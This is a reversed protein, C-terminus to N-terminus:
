LRILREIYSKIKNGFVAKNDDTHLESYTMHYLEDASYIGFTLLAFMNWASIKHNSHDTTFMNSIQLAEHFTM